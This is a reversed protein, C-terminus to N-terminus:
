SQKRDSGLIQELRYARLYRSRPLRLLLPLPRVAAATVGADLKIECSPRARRINRFHGEALALALLSCVVPSRPENRGTSGRSYAKLWIRAPVTASIPLTDKGPSGNEAEPPSGASFFGAM